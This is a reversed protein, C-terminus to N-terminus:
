AGDGELKIKAVIGDYKSKLAEDSELQSKISKYVKGGGTFLKNALISVVEGIAEIREEQKKYVLLMFQKELDNAGLEVLKAEDGKAKSLEKYRKGDIGEQNRIMDNTIVSIEKKMGDVVEMMLAYRRLNEDSIEEQALAVNATIGILLAGIIFKIKRM